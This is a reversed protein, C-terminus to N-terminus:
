GSVRITLGAFADEIGAQDAPGPLVDGEWNANDLWNSTNAGGDWKIVALLERAELRELRALFRRRAKPVEHDTHGFARSRSMRSNKAVMISHRGSAPARNPVDPM